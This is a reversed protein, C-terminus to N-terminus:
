RGADGDGAEVSRLFDGLERSVAAPAEVSCVHGVGPLVVLRASPIASRLGEAVDLPARVDQEGYVLLTPVTIGPLVHRLDAEASARAMTRFGSPSQRRVRAAFGAVASPDANASFMSPVM